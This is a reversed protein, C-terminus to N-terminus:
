HDFKIIIGANSKQVRSRHSPNLNFGGAAPLNSNSGTNSNTDSNSSSSSNELYQTMDKEAGHIVASSESLPCGVERLFVM